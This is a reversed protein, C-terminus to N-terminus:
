NWDRWLDQMSEYHHDALILKPEPHHTKEPICVVRMRAAKASVIGNLSDEIVLCRAPAAGLRKAVTLYVAPHPKGFEEHEASHCADFYNEIELERLVTQILIEYSSTALGIKKEKQKLLDLTEKVGSLPRANAEILEVMKTVIQQEVGEPTVEKWGEHAHWFRVVEDIRLGVTKQFDQKTLRSGVSSFVDEMAIKWLPESDILVGDMDFIVADFSDLNPKIEM